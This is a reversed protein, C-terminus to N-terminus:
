TNCIYVAWDSRGLVTSCPLSGISSPSVVQPGLSPCFTMISIVVTSSFVHVESFSSFKVFSHYKLDKM